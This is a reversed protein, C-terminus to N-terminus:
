KTKVDEKSTESAKAADIAGQQAACGALVTGLVIICILSVLKTM